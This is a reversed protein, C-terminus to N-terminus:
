TAIKRCIANWSKSTDCRWSPGNGRRTCQRSRSTRPKITRIPLWRRTTRCSRRCIAPERTLRALGTSLRSPKGNPSCSIRRGLCWIDSLRIPTTRSGKRRGAFPLFRRRPLPLSALRVLHLAEQVEPPLDRKTSWFYRQYFSPPRVRQDRPDSVEQEERFAQDHFNVTHDAVYKALAPNNIDQRYFVAAMAGLSTLQWNREDQMLGLLSDYDIGSLADPSMRLVAHTIEYDDFTSKWAKRRSAASGGAQKDRPPRLADRTQSHVLLLNKSAERSYYVAARNDVFVQEGVWILVDGQTLLQNFPRHDFSADGELQEKLENINTALTQDLGYGTRPFRPDRLRGTGGFLGIAAFVLVTLVRGGRSFVLESTELSYTQRCTTAYWKQGELTAIVSSVLAAFPLEHICLIALGLSASYILVHSVDLRRVNLVFLIAPAALIALGAVSALDLNSWYSPTTMPFYLLGPWIPQVNMALYTGQIYERFAPYDVGYVLWPGL